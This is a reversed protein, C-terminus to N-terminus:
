FFFNTVAYMVTFYIASVGSNLSIIIQFIQAQNCVCPEQVQKRLSGGWNINLAPQHRLKTYFFGGFSEYFLRSIAKLVIRLQFNLLDTQPRISITSFCQVCVQLSFLALHCFSHCPRLFVFSTIGDPLPADTLQFTGTMLSFGINVIPLASFLLLQPTNKGM